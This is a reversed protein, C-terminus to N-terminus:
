REETEFQVNWCNGMSARWSGACGAIDWGRDLFDLTSIWTDNKRKGRDERM